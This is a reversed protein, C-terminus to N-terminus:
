RNGWFWRITEAFLAGGHRLSHGGTGFEFRFDYGAYDLASALTQNALPWSGLIIDADLEGSQLFVKIDKRETSRVLYQFQNGGRINTFSGCHSIVNGFYAPEHWAANFACIGGSSIGCIIKDKANKSIPLGVKSEIFPVVEDILFKAYRGNCTDYEISRQGLIQRDDAGALASLPVGPNVFLGITPEIERNHILTDLVKTARIPGERNLYGDGDQFVMLKYEGSYGSSELNPVYISITRETNPYVASESWNKFRQLNGVPAEDGPYAEPCPHYQVDGSTDLSDLIESNSRGNVKKNPYEDNFVLHLGHGQYTEIDV